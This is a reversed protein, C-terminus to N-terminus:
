LHLIGFRMVENAEKHSECTMEPEAMYTEM